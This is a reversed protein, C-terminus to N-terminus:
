DLLQLPSSISTDNCQVVSMVTTGRGLTIEFDDEINGQLDRLYTSFDDNLTQKDSLFRPVIVGDENPLM